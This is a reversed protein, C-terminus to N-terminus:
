DPREEIKAKSRLKAIRKQLLEQREQAHLSELISERAEEFEIQRAEFRREVRLLYWTGQREIPESLDMPQEGFVFADFEAALEGRRVRGLLGDNAPEDSRQKVLTLFSKGAKVADAVKRVEDRARLREMPSKFHKAFWRVEASEAEVYSERHAKYHKKAHRDKPASVTANVSEVWQDVLMRQALHTRLDELTEGRSRLYQEVGALGGNRNALWQLRSEVAEADVQMGLREAEQKCLFHDIVNSRARDQISLRIRDTLVSPDKVKLESLLQEAEQEINAASVAEGNVWLGM